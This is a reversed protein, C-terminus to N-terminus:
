VDFPYSLLVWWGARLSLPSRHQPFRCPLATACDCLLALKPVPDRRAMVASIGM